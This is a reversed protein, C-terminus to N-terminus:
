AAKGTTAAAPRAADAEARTFSRGAYRLYVDDLSPRAVTVAALGVGADGLASLVAPLVVPGDVVRAHLWVGDVTVERVGPVATLADHVRGDV